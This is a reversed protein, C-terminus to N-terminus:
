PVASSIIPGVFEVHSRSMLRWCVVNAVCYIKEWQTPLGRGRVKCMNESMANALRLVGAPMKGRLSVM